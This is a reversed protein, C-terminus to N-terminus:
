CDPALSHKDGSKKTNIKDTQKQKAQMQKELCRNQLFRYAEDLSIGAEGEFIYFLQGVVSTNKLSRINVVLEHNPIGCGSSFTISSFITLAKYRASPIHSLDM